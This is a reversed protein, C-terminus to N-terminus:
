IEKKGFAEESYYRKHFGEILENEPMNELLEFEEVLPKFKRSGLDSLCNYFLLLHEYSSLQARVLNTYFKKNAVSSTKVFKILHYLNRFYHGLDSQNEKFFKLYVANVFNLDQTKTNEAEKKYMYALDDYLKKFCDRGLLIEKERKRFPSEPSQTFEYATLNIANVIENHFRLLQFFTNELNQHRIAENQLRLQEKQGKLEERTDKLEQRQLEFENKQFYLAVIIGAFALGSFLANIAGFMDGFSSRVSWTDLTTNSVMFYWSSGFLIIVVSFALL